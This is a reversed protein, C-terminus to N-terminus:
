RVEREDSGEALPSGSAVPTFRLEAVYDGDDRLTWGSGAPYRVTVAEVLCWRGERLVVWGDQTARLHHQYLRVTGNWKSVIARRAGAPVPLERGNGDSLTASAFEERDCQNSM